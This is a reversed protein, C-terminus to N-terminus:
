RSYDRKVVTRLVGFCKTGFENMFITLLFSLAARISVFIRWGVVDKVIDRFM